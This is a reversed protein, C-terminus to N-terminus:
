KGRRLHDEGRELRLRRAGRLLDPSRLPFNFQSDNQQLFQVM